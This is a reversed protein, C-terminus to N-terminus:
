FSSNLWGILTSSEWDKILKIRNYFNATQGRVTIRCNTLADGKQFLLLKWYIYNNINQSFNCHSSNLKSLMASSYPFFQSGRMVVLQYLFLRLPPPPPQWAAQLSLRSFQVFITYGSRGTRSEGVSYTLIQAKHSQYSSLSTWLSGSLEFLPWSMSSASLFCSLISIHSSLKKLLFM